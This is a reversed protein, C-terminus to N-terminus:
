VFRLINLQDLVFQRHDMDYTVSYGVEIEHQSKGLLLRLQPNINITSATSEQYSGSVYSVSLVPELDVGALISSM